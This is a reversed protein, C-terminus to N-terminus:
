MGQNKFEIWDVAFLPKGKNEANTFVLYLDHKGEQSKLTVSIPKMSGNPIMAEGIVEGTPSGTRIEMKGGSTVGVSSFAQFTASSISSLDINNFVVYSKDTVAVVVEAGTPLKYKMYDKGGDFTNVKLKANRLVVSKNITNPGIGGNGKDTYSANLIYTGEKKKDINPAYNGKLPEKKAIKDSDLSLIYKVMDKAEDETIQPHASMAQEGWVGGGGKIIKRTLNEVVMFGNKYKKAVERYAPGISKQENQHCSKCDSLEILRKGSSVGTNAQHGQAIVTKDFGDLYDITMVVDEPDIGKALTGDEKDTVKVEYDVKQNNWYFTKNGKVALEVSPEANGVKVVQSATNQNGKADTVKLTATYIGKKTFTFKPNPLTSKPLGKGFNWEYKLADGDFDVSKAGSFQVTLPSAGVKKDIEAVAVPKRNGPNYDIRSLVADPNQAFWNQGYELMYLTGNKDFAMDMPNEFKVNPLFREMNVYDGKENMEVTMIFVRMWEYAFFKGDYYAPFKSAGAHDDAYYVPGAMPNRGGKGLQPFEKSEAYPYWIFAKQAPPLERLGTNHPSDNIPKNVAFFDGSTSDAFNFARYPKNDAVFLPWGYYGAERAQNFECHGRPGYKALDDEGADPGVEGWYLNNNRQDVAIRYPNRNGMVYIEPRTKGTAGFQAVPFLNGDPITYGGDATPKIRLIKGRLDNSNSSTHRADWGQRKPRGDIPSFGESAFPNTDDGTSLYMNGKNDWDISGGTHCCDSRKVYVKLMIKETQMLLTDKADDYLFRSLYQDHFTSDGVPSYYLYVWKNQAFKPDINVGMLGYEFTTYVPIKAVVKTKKTVPNYVKLDGRREGFLVKGNPLIALETPENLNDVLVTKIFRNEEPRAKAMNLKTAMVSKLGGLVHKLFVTDSYAEDTHGFATYFAKGGDFDHFWSMPHDAGMKGEKYTKEDIKVLNKVHVNYNKFDYFEDKTKWREPFGFMSPHTNNLAVAEGNQVNPSAPHSAFQAGVLRNYWPWDYETDTAAHIGVFGGGAQIYHEFSEQQKDNLINGTTSLFVVAHYKQLNADTFQAADETTDVAFGNEQGLKIFAKKGVEISAHRFEKTKSFVLVRQQPMVQASAWVVILCLALTSSLQKIM